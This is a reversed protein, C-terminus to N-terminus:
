ASMAAKIDKIYNLAATIQKKSIGADAIKNLLASGIIVGDAMKALATAQEGTSIGFGVALPKNSNDRVRELFSTLDSPLVQRAGTVGTLSVCYIFGTSESAIKALRKTSSTPAVLFITDLGHKCASRKWGGAEEVSLDPIIVGDCGVDAARAAFKDIGYSGIINYYTMIVIPIDTKMRVTEIMKLAKDTNMGAALAKESAKQITAGDALPDSWPIGIEVIDAGADKLGEIISVCTSEDPYGAMMYPILAAKGEKKLQRFLREVRSV